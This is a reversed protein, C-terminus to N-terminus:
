VRSVSIRLRCADYAAGSIRSACFRCASRSRTANSCSRWRASRSQGVGLVEGALDRGQPDRQAVDGGAVEDARLQPVDDLAQDLLEGALEADAAVPLAGGM